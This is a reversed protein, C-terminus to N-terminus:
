ELGLMGRPAPPRKWLWNLRVKRLFNKFLMYDDNAQCVTEFSQRVHKELVREPYEERMHALVSVWLDDDSPSPFIREDLAYPIKRLSDSM